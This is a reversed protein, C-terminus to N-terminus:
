EVAPDEGEVSDGAGDQPVGPDKPPQMAEAVEQVRNGIAERGICVPYETLVEKPETTPLRDEFANRIYEVVVEPEVALTAGAAEVREKIAAVMSELVKHESIARGIQYPTKPGAAVVVALQTRRREPGGGDVEPFGFLAGGDELNAWEAMKQVRVTLDVISVFGLGIKPAIALALGNKEAIIGYISPKGKFTKIGKYEGLSAVFSTAAESDSGQPQQEQDM